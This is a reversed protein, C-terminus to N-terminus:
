NGLATKLLGVQKQYLNAMMNYDMQNRGAAILQEEMIVGNGDPLVEYVDRQTTEKAASIKNAPPMHNSHTTGLRVSTNGGKDIAGLVSDFNQAKLTKPRYGPTDANAINQAIVRQNQNLYRMKANLAQFLALNETTM